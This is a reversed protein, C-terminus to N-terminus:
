DSIIGMNPNSCGDNNHRSSPLQRMNNSCQTSLQKNVFFNKKNLLCILIRPCRTWSCSGICNNRSSNNLLM